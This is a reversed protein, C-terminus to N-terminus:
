GAGSELLVRHGNNVLASVADPTLCVRKEQFSTEKPIGIFLNGKRKLVELTEEQPLLQEKTFPSLSKSM